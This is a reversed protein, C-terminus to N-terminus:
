KYMFSFREKLQKKEAELQERHYKDQVEKNSGAKIDLSISKLKKNAEVRAQRTCLTSAWSMGIGYREAIEKIKYGEQKMKLMKKIDDETFSKTGKDEKISKVNIKEQWKRFGGNLSIAQTLGTFEPLTLIETSTPMREINKIKMVRRISDEIERETWPTNRRSM